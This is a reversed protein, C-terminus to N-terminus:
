QQQGCHRLVSHGSSNKAQRLKSKPYEAPWYPYVSLLIASKIWAFIEWILNYSIQIVTKPSHAPEVAKFLTSKPLLL